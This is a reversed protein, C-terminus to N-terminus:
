ESWNKFLYIADRAANVKVMDEHNGGHDPHAKWAKERYAKDVDARTCNVGLGLIHFPDMADDESSLLKLRTDIQARMRRLMTLELQDLLKKMMKLPDVGSSFNAYKFTNNLDDEIPM